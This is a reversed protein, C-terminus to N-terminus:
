SSILLFGCHELFNSTSRTDGKHFFKTHEVPNKTQLGFNINGTILYIDNPNVVEDIGEKSAYSAIEAKVIEEKEISFDHDLMIECAYRYIDRKKLKKILERAKNLSSHTSFEIEELINDTLKIYEKPDDIMADFKYYSNAETFVDCMMLEMGQTVRNLYVGKFM